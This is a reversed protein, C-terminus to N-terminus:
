ARVTRERLQLASIPPINFDITPPSILYKELMLYEARFSATSRNNPSHICLPPLVTTPILNLMFNAAQDCIQSYPV